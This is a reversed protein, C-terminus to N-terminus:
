PPLTMHAPLKGYCNYFLLPPYLINFTYLILAKEM